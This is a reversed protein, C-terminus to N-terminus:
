DHDNPDLPVNLFIAMTAIGAAYAAICCFVIAAATM